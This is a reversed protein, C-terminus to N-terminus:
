EALKTLSNVVQFSNTRPFRLSIGTSQPNLSNMKEMDLVGGFSCKSSFLRSPSIFRKLEKRVEIPSLKDPKKITANAVASTVFATAESTGTLEAMRFKPFASKIKYGPAFLDVTNKGWNSSPVKNLHDDQAGVTIINELHYGAPYFGSESHDVNM